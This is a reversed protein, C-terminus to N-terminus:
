IRDSVNKAYRHPISVRGPNRSEEVTRETKLTGILFQFVEKLVELSFQLPTKLTGILFQFKKHVGSNFDRGNNKAYRHPISVFVDARRDCGTEPTKLTGILFQFQSSRVPSSSTNLTKLTGILFQFQGM